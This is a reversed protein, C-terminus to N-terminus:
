ECDSFYKSSKALLDNNVCLFRPAVVRGSSSSRASFLHFQTNVLEEGLLSKRLFEEIHEQKRPDLTCPPLLDSPPHGTTILCKGFQNFTSECYTATNSKAIGVGQVVHKQQQQPKTLTHGSNQTGTGITIPPQHSFPAEATSRASSAPTSAGPM